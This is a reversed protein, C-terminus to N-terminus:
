RCPLLRSVLRRVLDCLRPLRCGCCRDHTQCCNGSPPEDASVFRIAANLTPELRNVQAESVGGGRIAQLANLLCRRLPEKATSDTNLPEVLDKGVTIPWDIATGNWTSTSVVSDAWASESSATSIREKLETLPSKAGGQLPKLAEVVEPLLAKRLDATTFQIDPQATTGAPPAASPASAPAQGPAAPAQAPAAPAPQLSVQRIPGSTAKVLVIGTSETQSSDSSASADSESDPQPATLDAAVATTTDPTDVAPVATPVDIKAEEVTAVPSTPVDVSKEVNAVMPAAPVDVKTEEVTVEPLVPVDVSQEVVDVSQEVVAVAPAASATPPVDVKTEEVIVVPLAPVDVSKELVAVVPAALPAEPVVLASALMSVRAARDVSRVMLLERVFMQRTRGPVRELCTYNLGPNEVHLVLAIRLARASAPQDGLDAQVLSLFYWPRPDADHAQIASQFSQLAEQKRGAWYQSFGRNFLTECDRPMSSDARTLLEKAHKTSVPDAAAASSTLWIGILALGIRRMM